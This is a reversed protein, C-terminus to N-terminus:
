NIKSQLFATIAFEYCFYCPLGSARHSKFFFGGWGGGIELIRDGSKIGLSNIIRDYKRNQAITFDEQERRTLAQKNEDQEFIAASYSMSPDLWKDYFENGLDYHAMINQKSGKVTNAQFFREVKHFFTGFINGHFASKLVDDNLCAWRVFETTNSIELDGAMVSEALGIDGQSIIKNFVSEDKLILQSVFPGEGAVIKNNTGIYIEVHGFKAKELLKLVLNTKLSLSNM